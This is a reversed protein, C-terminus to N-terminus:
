PGALARRIQRRWERPEVPHRLRSLWDAWRLAGSGLMGTLLDELHGAKAQLELIEHRAAALQVRHGHAGVLHYVRNAEERELVPNRDWGHALGEVADAWRADAHWVIGVGFFVPIIALRAGERAAVFDEVATLVGNRPGGQRAAAWEFPIGMATVGPNEPHLGPRKVLPQRHEEPIDAPEYYIDRRALPWLVDHLITLPGHGSSREHILRLESSVTYYNHDGDIVVVDPVDIRGLAELSRERILELDGREQALAVLEDTPKPDIAAVTAGASEAWGLLEKTLDGAYAGVEVVSRAAVTDLFPVLLEAANALSAGWRGPDYGRVDTSM